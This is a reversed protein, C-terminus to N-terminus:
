VASKRVEAHHAQDGFLNFAFSRFQCNGDGEMEMTKSNFSELREELIVPVDSGPESAEQVKSILNARFVSGARSMRTSKTGPMAAVSKRTAQVDQKCVRSQQRTM